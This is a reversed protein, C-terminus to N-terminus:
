GKHKSHGGHHHKPHHDHMDSHGGHHDKPHHEHVESHGHSGHHVHGGKAYKPHTKEGHTQGSVDEGVAMRHHQRTADSM